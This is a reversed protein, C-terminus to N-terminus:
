KFWYMREFLSNSNGYQLGSTDLIANVSNSLLWSRILTTLLLPSLKEKGQIACEWIILVRINESSCQKLTSKDKKANKGLKDEWFATNSKPLKFYPCDHAHWFCGHVFVAANFKPLYMDPKGPLDKPCVRYRLGSRHLLKRVIVEPKTDKCKIARMNKSRTSKDHVDTM